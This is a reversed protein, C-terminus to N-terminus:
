QRARHNFDDVASGHEDSATQNARRAEDVAQQAEDNNCSIFTEIDDKYSEMESRCRSFDYEDDFAGYGSACSPASPEYCAYAPESSSLLFASAWVIAIFVGSKALISQATV